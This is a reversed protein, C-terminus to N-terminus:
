ITTVHEVSNKMELEYKNTEVSFRRM